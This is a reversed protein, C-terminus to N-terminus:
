TASSPTLRDIWSPSNTEMMPGFPAPLDVSMLTSVPTRWGLAPLTRKLPLSMPPMPVTASVRSPM